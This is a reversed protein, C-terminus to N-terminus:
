KGQKKVVSVEGSRELRALKAEDPQEIGNLRLEELLDDEGIHHERLRERDVKGNEILTQSHGKILGAFFPSRCGLWALFRHLFVLLFGAGITPLLQESGNIARAMMSALIFGLIIDFATKKGFFRKDAVRAM